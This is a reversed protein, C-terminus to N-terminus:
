KLLFVNSFKETEFYLDIFKFFCAQLDANEEIWSGEHAVSAWYRVAGEPSVAICSPVTAKKHLYVTVLDARHALDSPPLTLERCQSVSTWKSPGDQRYQWVL